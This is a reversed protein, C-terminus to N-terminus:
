IDVTSHYDEALSPYEKSLIQICLSAQDMLIPDGRNALYKIKLFEQQAKFLLTPLQLSIHQAYIKALCYHAILLCWENTCQELVYLALNQSRKANGQFDLAFVAAFAIAEFHSSIPKTIELDSNLMLIEKSEPYLHKQWLEFASKITLGILPTTRSLEILLVCHEVYFYGLTQFLSSHTDSEGQAIEIKLAKQITEFGKAYEKKHLYILGILGLINKFKLERMHLLTTKQHPSENVADKTVEIYSMFFSISDQTQKALECLRIFLSDVLGKSQSNLKSFGKKTKPFHSHLTEIDNMTLPQLLVKEILTKLQLGSPETQVSNNSKTELVMSQFSSIILSILGETQSAQKSHTNIAKYLRKSLTKNIEVDKANRSTYQSINAAIEKAVPFLYHQAWSDNKSICAFTRGQISIKDYIQPFQSHLESFSLTDRPCMELYEIFGIITEVSPLSYHTESHM